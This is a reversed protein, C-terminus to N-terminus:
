HLTIAVLDCFHIKNAQKNILYLILMYYEQKVPAVLDYQHAATLTVPSGCDQDLEDARGCVERLPAPSYFGQCPTLDRYSVHVSVCAYM